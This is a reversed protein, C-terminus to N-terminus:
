PLDAHAFPYRGGADTVRIVTRLHVTGEGFLIKDRSCDLTMRAGGVLVTALIANTNRKLERFWKARNCDVGALDSDLEDRM